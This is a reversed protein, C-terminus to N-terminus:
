ALPAAAAPPVGGRRVFAVSSSAQVGESGAAEGCPQFAAAHVGGM